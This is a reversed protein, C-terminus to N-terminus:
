PGFWNRRVGYVRILMFVTCWGAGGASIALFYDCRAWGNLAFGWQVILLMWLSPTSIASTDRSRWLTHAQPWNYVINLLSVLTMVFSWVYSTLLFERFM